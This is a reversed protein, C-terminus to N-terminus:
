RQPTPLECAEFIRNGPPPSAVGEQSGLPHPYGGKMAARWSRPGGHAKDARGLWCRQQGNLGQVPVPRGFLECDFSLM